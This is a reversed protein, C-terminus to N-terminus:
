SPQSLGQPWLPTNVLTSILILELRGNLRRDRKNTSRERVDGFSLHFPIDLCDLFRNQFLFLLFRLAPGLQLNLIFHIASHIIARIQVSRRIIFMAHTISEDDVVSNSERPRVEWEEVDM